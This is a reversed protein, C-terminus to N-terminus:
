RIRLKPIEIVVGFRFERNSTRFLRLQNKHDFVSAKLEDQVTFQAENRIINEVSLYRRAGSEMAQSDLFVLGGFFLTNAITVTSFGLSMLTFSFRWPIVEQFM